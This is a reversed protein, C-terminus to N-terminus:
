EGIVFSVLSEEDPIYADSKDWFPEIMDFSFHWDYRKGPEEEIFKLDVRRRGLLRNITAFKGCLHRMEPIFGGDCNIAHGRLGYEAEMEHWYRVVVIDGEKFGERFENM